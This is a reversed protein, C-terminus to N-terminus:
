DFVLQFYKRLSEHVVFPKDFACDPYGRFAWRDRMHGKFKGESQYRNGVAGNAYLQSFIRNIQIRSGFGDIVGPIKSNLHSARFEVEDLTFSTKWASLITKLNEVQKRSHNQLM